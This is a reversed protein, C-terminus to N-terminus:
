KKLLLDKTFYNPPFNPNLRLDRFFYSGILQGDKGRLITGVQLLTKTDIFLVVDMVGDEEPKKIGFRHIKYCPRNNLQPVEFIGEYKVFLKGEAQIRKWTRIVRETGIKIGFDDITYRGNRLAEDGRPDRTQLPVFPISPKAWMKGENKGEVYLVAQVGFPSGKKWKMLVSHPSEQFEAEVIELAKLKGQIREQKELTTKYGKIEKEYKEVTYELFAVVDRKIRHEASHFHYIGYWPVSAMLDATHSSLLLCGWEGAVDATAVAQPKDLVPEPISTSNAAFFAFLFFFPLCCLIRTMFLFGIPVFYRNM